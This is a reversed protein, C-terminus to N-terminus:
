VAHIGFLALLCILAIDGIHGIVFQTKVIQAVVHYNVLLLQDQPPHM